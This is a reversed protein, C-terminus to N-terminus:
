SVLDFTRIHGQVLYFLIALYEHIAARSRGMGTASPLFDTIPGLGSERKPLVAAVASVVLGQRRLSAAMRTVHAPSTVLLVRDGGLMTVIRAVGRATEYSNKADTELIVDLGSLGIQAALIKAEPQSEGRPAGGSLILPMNLMQSLRQGTVAREVGAATSWWSGNSDRFIGATPVLIAANNASNSTMVEISSIAGAALPRALIKAVIPLSLAVLLVTATAILIFSLRRRKWFVLGVAVMLILPTPIAILIELLARM